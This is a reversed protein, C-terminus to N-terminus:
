NKDQMFEDAREDLVEFYDENFKDVKKKRGSLILFGNSKTKLEIYFIRYSNPYKIRIELLKHKANKRKISKIDLNEFKGNELLKIRKLVEALLLRDSRQLKKFDKEAQSTLHIEHM